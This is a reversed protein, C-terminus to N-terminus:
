VHDTALKLGTVVGNEITPAVAGNFGPNLEKLRDAVAQVQEGAPIAALSRERASANSSREEAKTDPPLPEQSVRVVQRGSRTVNVLERCVIKGNKSAQVTYRGPQLRIERAGTGTIVLDSGDIKISVAPDDVEVILTGEPSFLRIVTVHFDTVGTAETFSLCGL